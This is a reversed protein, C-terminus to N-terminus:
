RQKLRAALSVGYGVFGLAAAIAISPTNSLLTRYQPILSRELALAAAGSVVAGGYGHGRYAPHTVVAIHAIRAGWLEFGAAAVIEDDVICGVVPQADLDSGGHEWEIAACSRRFREFRQRDADTLRRLHQLSRPQFSAADAYGVFAPGVLREVPEDIWAQLSPPDDLLTASCGALAVRDHELREAPVSILLTDRRRLCFLGHYDGLGAHPVITTGPDALLAPEVGFFAAWYRDVAAITTAQLDAV